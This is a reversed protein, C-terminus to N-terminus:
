YEIRKIIEQPTLKKETLAVFASHMIDHFVGTVSNGNPAFEKNVLENLTDAISAGMGDLIKYVEEKSRSKDSLDIMGIKKYQQMASMLLMANSASAKDYDDFSIWEGKELKNRHEKREIDKLRSLKDIPDLNSRVFIAKQIPDLNALFQEYADSSNDVTPEAGVGQINVLYWQIAEKLDYMPTRPPSNQYKELGQKEYNEISRVTVGLILALDKKHAIALGAIDTYYYREDVNKLKDKYSKIM